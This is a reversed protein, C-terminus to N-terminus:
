RNIKDIYIEGSTIVKSLSDSNISNEVSFTGQIINELTDCKTFNVGGTETIFVDSSNYGGNNFYTIFCDTLAPQAGLKALALIEMVQKGESYALIQIQRRSVSSGTYTYLLAYTSDVTVKNGDLVFSFATPAAAKNCSYIIVVIFILLSFFLIIKKM